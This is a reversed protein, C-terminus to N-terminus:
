YYWKLKLKICCDGRGRGLFSKSWAKKRKELFLKKKIRIYKKTRIFDQKSSQNTLVNLEGDGTATLSGAFDKWKEKGNRHLSALCSTNIFANWGLRRCLSSITDTRSNEVPRHLPLIICYRKCCYSTTSCYRNSQGSCIPALKKNSDKKQPM